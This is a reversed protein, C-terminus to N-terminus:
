KGNNYDVEEYKIYVRMDRRLQSRFQISKCTPSFQSDLWWDILMMIEGEAIKRRDSSICAKNHQSGKAIYAAALGCEIKYDAAAM